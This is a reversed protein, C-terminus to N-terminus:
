GRTSEEERARMAAVEQRPGTMGRNDLWSLWKETNSIRVDSSWLSCRVSRGHHNTLQVVEGSRAYLYLAPSGICMCHSWEDPPELVLISKLDDLDKRDTSEFLTKGADAPSEKVVLRVARALVRDLNALVVPKEDPTTM